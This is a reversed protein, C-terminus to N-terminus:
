IGDYIDDAVIEREIEKLVIPLTNTIRYVAPFVLVSVVVNSWIKFAYTNKLFKYLVLVLTLYSIIIGVYVLYISVLQLLYNTNLTLVLTVRFIVSLPFSLTLLGALKSFKGEQQTFTYTINFFPVWVMIKDRTTFYEKGVTFNMISRSLIITYAVLSVLGVLVLNNWINSIINAM